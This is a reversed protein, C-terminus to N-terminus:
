GGEPAARWVDEETMTLVRRLGEDGPLRHADATDSAQWRRVSRSEETLVHLCPPWFWGISHAYAGRNIQQATGKISM